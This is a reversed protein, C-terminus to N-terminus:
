QHHVRKKLMKIKVKKTVRKINDHNNEMIEYLHLYCTMTGSTVTKMLIKSM